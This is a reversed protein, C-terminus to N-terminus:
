FILGILLLKSWCVVGVYSLHQWNFQNLPHEIPLDTGEMAAMAELILILLVETCNIPIREKGADKTEFRVLYWPQKLMTYQFFTQPSQNCTSHPLNAKVNKRNDEKWHNMSTSSPHAFAPFLYPKGILESLIALPRFSKEIDRVKDAIRRMIYAPHNCNVKSIEYKMLLLPAFNNKRELTELLVVEFPRFDNLAKETIVPALNNLELFATKVVEKVSKYNVIELQQKIFDIKKTSLPIIMRSDISSIM